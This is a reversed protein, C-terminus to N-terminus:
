QEAESGGWNGVTAVWCGVERARAAGEPAADQLAQEVAAEEVGVVQNGVITAAKTAMPMAERVAPLRM